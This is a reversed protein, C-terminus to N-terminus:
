EPKMILPVTAGADPLNVTSELDRRGVTASVRQSGLFARVNARGDSDTTVKVDTWWTKTLLEELVKGNPKASWDKRYFAGNPLWQDGQWIGWMNFGTIRPHSFCITLFDRTYAAQAQENLTNIDFETIQLEATTETAFRDLIKLVTEPATLDEDFHGQLGLVDPAQGKSKLFRYWDLDIDQNAKTAGGNTLITNENLSLKANPVDQRARAFWEAVADRGLLQHVDVCDRLENTVDYERFGFARTAQSIEDIHQLITERLLAPNSKLKVVNAPMFKFGPYVMVHGRVTFHHDTLWKATALYRPKQSPWGWDAWYIPTTARNFLRLFTERMKQGDPTQDVLGYGAFSGITFARSQQQVHVSANAVPHGAADVVKIALTAMRYKEIRKQAEARWPANSEMGQWVIPLHPLKGPDVGAGLDLVVLGALDVVQKQQSLHIAVQLGGPAFDQAAIDEAFVQKWNKNCSTAVRVASDWKGDTTQLFFAATGSEGGQAEPARIFCSLLLTDGKRVAGRTVASLVQVRYATEYARAVHMRVVKDLPMADSPDNAVIESSSGTAAAAIMTSPDEHDILIDGAVPLKSRLQSVAPGDGAKLVSCLLLLLFSGSWFTHILKLTAETTTRNYV